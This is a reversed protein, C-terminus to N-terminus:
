SGFAEDAEDIKKLEYDGRGDFRLVYEHYTWLSKRHSVTFLTINQERCYSYM